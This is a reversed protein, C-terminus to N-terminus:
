VRVCRVGHAILEGAALADIQQQQDTLYTGVLNSFEANDMEIRDVEYGTTVTSNSVAQVADSVTRVRYFPKM